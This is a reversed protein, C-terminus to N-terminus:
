VDGLKPILPDPLVDLYVRPGRALELRTGLGDDTYFKVIRRNRIRSFFAVYRPSLSFFPCCVVLSPVGALSFFFARTRIRM